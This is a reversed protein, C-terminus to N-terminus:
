RANQSKLFDYTTKSFATRIVFLELKFQFITMRKERIYNIYISVIKFDDKWFQYTSLSTWIERLKNNDIKKLRVAKQTLNISYIIQLLTTCFYLFPCSSRLVFFSVRDYITMIHTRLVFSLNMPALNAHDYWLTYYLEM